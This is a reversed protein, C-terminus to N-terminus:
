VPCAAKDEQLGGQFRQKKCGLCSQILKAGGAPPFHFQLGALATQFPPTLFFLIM